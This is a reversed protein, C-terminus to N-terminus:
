YYSNWQSHAINTIPTNTSSPIVKNGAPTHALLFTHQNDTQPVHSMDTLDSQTITSSTLVKQTANWKKTSKIIIQM